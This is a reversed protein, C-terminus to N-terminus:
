NQTSPQNWFPREKENDPEAMLREKLNTNRLAIKNNRVAMGIAKKDGVIVALKRARTVATYLLNRQLMMYHQMLLPIVVVPFESGQSKHISIAYAHVLEELQLTECPVLRDEFNVMVIQNESDINAIMGLDGNFIQRDYDNRIQMVRDGVRFIRSGHRVEARTPNEPNLANQLRENLETVGCSGRHMPTLVQIDKIPDFGFKNQVRQSVLEIVWDAAKLADTEAFLFFDSADKPFIPTEGNNIRHANV